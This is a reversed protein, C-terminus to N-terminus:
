WPVRGAVRDLLRDLFAAQAPNIKSRATDPDFWEARDVEPVQTVGSGKPWELPFTCSVLTAPDADQELAFGHVVKGSRQRVSGLPCLPATATWGTEELLERRAADEAAEGEELGGKPITWAGADKRVWFPGGPHVLLVEVADGRRRWM